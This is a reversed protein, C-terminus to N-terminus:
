DMTPIIIGRLIVKQCTLFIILTPISAVVLAAMVIWPQGRYIQQFQYLWVMLTWM